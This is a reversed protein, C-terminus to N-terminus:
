PKPDYLELTLSSIITAVLSIQQLFFIINCKGEEVKKHLIKNQVLIIIIRLLSMEGKMMLKKFSIIREFAHLKHM